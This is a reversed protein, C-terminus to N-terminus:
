DVLTAIRRSDACTFACASIMCADGSFWVYSAENEAERQEATRETSSAATAWTAAMPRAARRQHVGQPNGAVCLFLKESLVILGVILGVVLGVVLGVILGVILRVILEVILRVILGVVSKFARGAAQRAKTDHPPRTGHGM